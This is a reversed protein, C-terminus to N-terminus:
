IASLTQVETSKMITTTTITIILIIIINNNNTTTNDDVDDDNNNYKNQACLQSTHIRSFFRPNHKAFM